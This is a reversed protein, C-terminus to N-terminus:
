PTAGTIIISVVVWLACIGIFSIARQLTTEPHLPDRTRRQEINQSM